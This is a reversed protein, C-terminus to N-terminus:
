ASAYQGVAAASVAADIQSSTWGLADLVDLSHEGIRPSQALAAGEVFKEVGPIRPAPVPGVVPHTLWQVADVARV